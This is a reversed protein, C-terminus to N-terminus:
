EEKESQEVVPLLQQLLSCHCMLSMLFVLQHINELEYDHDVVVISDDSLKRVINFSM